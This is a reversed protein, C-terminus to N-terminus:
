LSPPKEDLSDKLEGRDSRLIPWKIFRPLLASELVFLPIESYIWGIGLSSTHYLTANLYHSTTM